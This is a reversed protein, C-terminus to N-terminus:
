KTICNYFRGVSSFYSCQSFIQIICRLMIWFYVVSSARVQFLTWIYLVKWLLLYKLGLFIHVSQTTAKQKVMAISNSVIEIHVSTQLAFGTITLHAKEDKDVISCFSVPIHEKERRGRRILIHGLHLMSTSWGIRETFCWCHCQCVVHVNKHLELKTDCKEIFLKDSRRSNIAYSQRRLSVSSLM